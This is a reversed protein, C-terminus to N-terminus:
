GNENDRKRRSRRKTLTILATTPLYKNKRLFHHNESFHDRKKQLGKRSESVWGRLIQLAKPAPISPLASIRCIRRM